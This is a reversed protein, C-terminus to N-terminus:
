VCGEIEIFYLSEKELRRAKVVLLRFTLYLPAAVGVGSCRVQCLHTLLHQPLVVSIRFPYLILNSLYRGKSVVLDFVETIFSFSLPSLTTGCLCESTRHQTCLSELDDVPLVCCPVM